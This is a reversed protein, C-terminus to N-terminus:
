KKDTSGFGGEGRETSSLEEAWEPEIHTTAEILIQAAKTGAKLMFPHVYEGAPAQLMLKVEGRYDSDIFGSVRWGQSWMSSRAKVKGVYGEPIEMQFGLPIVRTEGPKFVLSEITLPLFLDLAAAQASGYAPLVAGERLSKFRVKM